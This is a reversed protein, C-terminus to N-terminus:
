IDPPADPKLDYMDIHSPGGILLVMIVSRSQPAQEQARLRLLDSLMLGGMGLGGSRLFDRRAMGDCFAAPKTGWLTIMTTIEKKSRRVPPQNLCAASCAPSERPITHTSLARTTLTPKIATCIM